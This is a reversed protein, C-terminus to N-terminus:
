SFIINLQQLSFIILASIVLSPAFPLTRTQTKSLFYFAFAIICSILLFYSLFKPFIFLSLSSFLLIDGLGLTDKGCIFQCVFYFLCGGLFAIAFSLVADEIALPNIKLALFVLALLILIYCHLISILRYRYDIYAILYCFSGLFYYLLSQLWFSFLLSCGFSLGSYILCHYRYDQQYSRCPFNSDHESTLWNPLFYLYLLFMLSIFFLIIIMM